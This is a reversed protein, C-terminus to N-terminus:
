NASRSKTPASCCKRAAWVRSEAFANHTRRKSQNLVSGEEFAEAEVSPLYAARPTKDNRSPYEIAQAFTKRSDNMLNLVAAFGESTTSCTGVDEGEEEEADEDFSL